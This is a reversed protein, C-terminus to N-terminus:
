CVYRKKLDYKKQERDQSKSEFMGLISTLPFFSPFSM